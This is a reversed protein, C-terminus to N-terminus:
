KGLDVLTTAKLDTHIPLSFTFTSGKGAGPSTAWIKGKHEAIIIKAVYLGLGMGASHKISEKGRSYKEFIKGVDDGDIGQGNDTVSFNINNEQKELRVTIVGGIPTYKIANDILNNMVQRLKEKDAMIKPLHRKPQIYTLRQSREKALPELQEFTVAAMQELNVPEFLFEMKGREIRSVNLMDEILSILLNNTREARALTEKVKADMKGYDGAILSSLYWKVTAPPTRLQHSAISIFEARAQDLAKLQKNAEALEASLKQLQERQEVEREVGRILLSGVVLTGVLVVGGIIFQTISDSSIFQIFIIANLVVVMIEALVAKTNLLKHKIMAYSTFLVFPLTYLHSFRVTSANDLVVYNLFSFSIILIFTSILGISLFRWQSKETGTAKKYKKIFSIFGFAICLGVFIGFVPILPGPTPAPQGKADTGLGSFFAPSITLAAILIGACILVISSKKQRIPKNDLFNNIFLYFALSHFTGFFLTLRTIFLFDGSNYSQFSFYNTTIWFVQALIFLSFLTRSQDKPAYRLVIVLISLNAILAAVFISLEFAM